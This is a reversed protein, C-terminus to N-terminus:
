KRARYGKPCVPKVATVTTSAKGKVCVIQKALAFGNACKVQVANVQRAINGKVCYFTKVAAYGGPCKPNVGVVSKVTLGKACRLLKAGVTGRPCVPASGVVPSVSKGKACYITKVLVTGSPCKPSISRIVRVQEGGLCSISRAPSADFKVKVTPQSFTFNTASFRFWGDRLDISTNSPAAKQLENVVSADISAVMEDELSDSPEIEETAGMEEAAQRTWAAFDFVEVDAAEVQRQSGDANIDTEDESDPYIDYKPESTWSSEEIFADDNAPAAFGKSFKYLCEAVDERVTLHYEGKFETKGDKEFHPAAVKYSFQKTSNDYSPPGSVYATANTTVIGTLGKGSKICVPSADLDTGDLSQVNWSSVLAASKDQMFETWYRIDLFADDSDPSPSLWAVRATPNRSDDNGGGADCQNTCSKNLWDQLATPLENWQGGAYVIPVRIPKASVTITSGSGLAELKIDPDALRGYMWGNPESSLRVKVEYRFGVPFAHRLACMSDDGWFACRKGDQELSMGATGLMKKEGPNSPRTTVLPMCKGPLGNPMIGGKCNTQFLSTPVITAFFDDVTAKSAAALKTGSISVAVAYTSGFGHSAGVIEWLGPSKGDPISSAPDGTYGNAPQKPFYERFTADFATGSDSVARVSDICNTSTSATCPGLVAMYFMLGGRSCRSDVASDCTFEGDTDSSSLFSAARDCYGMSGCQGGRDNGGTIEIKLQHWGPQAVNARGTDFVIQEDEAVADASASRDAMAVLPVGLVLVMLFSLANNTRSNM